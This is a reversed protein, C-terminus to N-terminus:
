TRAHTSGPNLQLKKPLQQMLLQFAQARHSIRNKHEATLEAATVNLEPIFFVPDYGFGQTGVIKPAIIGHWIGHCILPTPDSAHLMFVLVSHFSATRKEQPVDKIAELLKLNNKEADGVANAWRASYIGPGGNLADVAIGSDDALAPLGTQECAHRAKLLANEVFTIATEEVDKVGADKASVLEVPLVQLMTQLERIKGPNHSAIVIKM